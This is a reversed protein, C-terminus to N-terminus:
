LLLAVIAFNMPQKMAIANLTYEKSDKLFGFFIASVNVARM